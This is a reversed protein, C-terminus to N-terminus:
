KKFSSFKLIHLPLIMFFDYLQFHFTSPLSLISHLIKFLIVKIKIKIQYQIKNSNISLKTTWLGPCTPLFARAPTRLKHNQRSPDYTPLICCEQTGSGQSASCCCLGAQYLGAQQALRKRLNGHPRISWPVQWRAAAGRRHLM